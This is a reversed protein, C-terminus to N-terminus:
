GDGQEKETAALIGALDDAERWMQGLKNGTAYMAINVSTMGMAWLDYIKNIDTGSMRLFGTSHSLHHLSGQIHREVLALSDYDASVTLGFIGSEERFGPASFIENLKKLMRYKRFAFSTQQGMQVGDALASVALPTMQAMFDGKTREIADEPSAFPEAGAHKRYVRRVACMVQEYHYTKAADFEPMHQMISSKSIDVVTETNGDEAQIANVASEIQESLESM